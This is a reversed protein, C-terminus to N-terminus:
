DISFSLTTSFMKLELYLWLYPSGQYRLQYLIWRSHLFWISGTWNRPWSSGRSFSYAVWELIRPSGQHNLHYLIWKCHPLGSNSGQTPFIRQLLSFSGVRTNQGPSNWPRYLGHPWLSDSVVLCSESESEKWIISSIVMSLSTWVSFSLDWTIDSIHLIM